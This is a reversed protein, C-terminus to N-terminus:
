DRQMGERATKWERYRVLAHHGYKSSVTFPSLASVYHRTGKVGRGGKVSAKLGEEDRGKMNEM